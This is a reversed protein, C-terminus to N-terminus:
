LALHIAKQRCNKYEKHLCIEEYKSLIFEAFDSIEQAKELPLAYLAQVTKEIISEKSM